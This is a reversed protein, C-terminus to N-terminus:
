FDEKMITSINEEKLKSLSQMISVVCILIEVICILFLPLIYLDQYEGQLLLLVILDIVTVATFPLAKEMVYRKRIEEISIKQSMLIVFSKRYYDTEKRSILICFVTFLIVIMVTFGTFMYRYIESHKQEQVREDYLPSVAKLSSSSLQQLTTEMREYDSRIQFLDPNVDFVGYLSAGYETRIGKMYELVDDLCYYIQLADTDPEEIMGTVTVDLTYIKQELEYELQLTRNQWNGNFVTEATNQNVMVSLGSPKDGHIVLDDTNEVYPYIGTPYETNDYYLPVFSLIQEAKRFGADQLVEKETCRVYAMDSNLTLATSPIAFLSQKLVSSGQALLLLLAFVATFVRNKSRVVKHVLDKVSKKEVPIEPQSSIQGETERVTKMKLDHDEISLIYDAYRDVSEKQHTAMIVIHDRSYEKLLDMVIQRNEIDLSETPEDCCIIGPRAIFARAIGARQKQGGSLENPYQELLTNIQLTELLKMHEASCKKGLLINDYVNLESILEYNQFVTMMNMDSTVTGQDFSDFGAIMNLLTSKGSGSEGWLAYLGPKEIRLNVDTFIVQSGFSKRGHVIELM